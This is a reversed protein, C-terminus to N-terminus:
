EYLWRNRFKEDIDWCERFGQSSNWNLQFSHNRKYAYEFRRGFCNKPKISLTSIFTDESAGFFEWMDQVTSMNIYLQDYINQNEVDIDIRDTQYMEATFYLQEGDGNIIQTYDLESKYASNNDLTDIYYSTEYSIDSEVTGEVFYGSSISTLFTDQDDANINSPTNLYEIDANNNYVQINDDLGNGLVGSFFGNEQGQNEHFTSTVLYSLNGDYYSAEGVLPVYYNYHSSTHEWEDITTAADCLVVVGDKGICSYVQDAEAPFSFVKPIISYLLVFSLAYIKM